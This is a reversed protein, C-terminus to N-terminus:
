GAVILISFLLFICVAADAARTLQRERPTIRILTRELILRASTDRFHYAAETSCVASRKSESKLIDWVVVSAAVIGSLYLIKAVEM